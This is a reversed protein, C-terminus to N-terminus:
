STALLVSFSLRYSFPYYVVPTLGLFSPFRPDPKAAKEPSREGLAGAAPRTLAAKRGHRVGHDGVNSLIWCIGLTYHGFSPAIGLDCRVGRARKGIRDRGAM